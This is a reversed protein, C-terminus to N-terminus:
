NSSAAPESMTNHSRQPDVASGEGDMPETQAASALADDDELRVFDRRARDDSKRHQLSNDHGPSSGAMWIVAVKEKAQIAADLARSDPM